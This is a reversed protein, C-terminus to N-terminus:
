LLSSKRGLAPWASGTEAAGQFSYARLPAVMPILMIPYIAAVVAIVGLQAADALPSSPLNLLVNPKVDPGFIAYGLCAFLGFIFALAAFAISLARRFREPSRDELEQYMPLVCMQIIMCQALTALM